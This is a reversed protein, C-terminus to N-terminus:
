RRQSASPLPDLPSLRGMDLQFRVSRSGGRPCCVPDGTRYIGYSLTVETDSQASVRIQASSDATDTGLYRSGNFFFARRTPQNASASRAGILVRLTQDAHYVSTDLPTFGLARLRAAAASQAGSPSNSPSAGGTFAPATATRTHAPSQSPNSQAPTSSRSSTTTPATADPRTVTVTEVTSASNSNGCAGLAAAAGVITALAIPARLLM